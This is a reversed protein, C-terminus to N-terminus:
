ESAGRRLDRLTDTLYDRPRDSHDAQPVSCVYRSTQLSPLLRLNLPGFQFSTLRVRDLTRRLRLRFGDPHM